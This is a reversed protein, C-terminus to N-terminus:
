HIEATLSVPVVSPTEVIGFASQFDLNNISQPNFASVKNVYFAKCVVTDLTESYARINIFGLRLLKM